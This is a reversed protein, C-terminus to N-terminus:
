QVIHTELLVSKLILSNHGQLGALRLVIKNMPFIFGIIINDSAGTNLWMSLRRASKMDSDSLSVVKNIWKFQDIHKMSEPRNLYAPKDSIIM